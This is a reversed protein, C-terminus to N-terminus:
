PNENVEGFFLAKHLEALFITFALGVTPKEATLDTIISVGIKKFEDPTITIESKEVPENKKTEADVTEALILDSTNVKEISFENSDKIEFDVVAITEYGNNYTVRITGYRAESNLITMVRDGIKFNTKNNSM